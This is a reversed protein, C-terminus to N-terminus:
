LEDDDEPLDRQSRGRLLVAVIAVGAVGAFLWDWRITTGGSEPPAVDLSLYTPDDADFRTTLEATPEESTIRLTWVGPPPLETEAVYRGDVATASFSSPLLSAGSDNSGSLRVAGRYVPHDDDYTLEVTIRVGQEAGSPEIAILVLEGADSHADADSTGLVICCVTCCLLSLLSRSRM